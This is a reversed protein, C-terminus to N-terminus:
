GAVLRRVGEDLVADQKCFAFRVISAWPEPHDTFVSVPIAAVGRRAPLERCFELGDRAGVSHADACVFYTGESAFPALGAQSLASALRDRKAQLSVRLSEVWAGEHRLAHAIAPQFPGGRDALSAHSARVGPLKAPARGRLLMM